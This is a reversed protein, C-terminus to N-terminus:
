GALGGKNIGTGLQNKVETTKRCYKDGTPLIRAEWLRFLFPGLRLSRMPSSVPAVSLPVVGLGYGAM